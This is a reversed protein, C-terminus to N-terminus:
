YNGHDAYLNSEYAKDESSMQTKAPASYASRYPTQKKALLHPDFPNGHAPYITKAPHEESLTPYRHDSNGLWGRYSLDM